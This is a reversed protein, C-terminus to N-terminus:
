KKASITNSMDASSSQNNNSIYTYSSGFYHFVFSWAALSMLHFKLQKHYKVSYIFQCRAM